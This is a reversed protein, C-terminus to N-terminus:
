QDTDEKVRIVDDRPSVTILMGDCRFKITGDALQGLNAGKIMDLLQAKLKTQEDLAQVRRKFAARYKRAVPKIGKLNEPTVDILDLQEGSTSEAKKTKRAM